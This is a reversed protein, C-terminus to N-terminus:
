PDAPNLADEIEVTGPNITPPDILTIAPSVYTAAGGNFWLCEQAILNIALNNSGVPDGDPSQVNFTVDVVEGPAVDHPLPNRGNYVDWHPDGNWRYSVAIRKDSVACDGSTDGSAYWTRTGVNEITVTVDRDDGLCWDSSGYDITIVEAEFDQGFVSFGLVLQICVVIIKNFINLKKLNYEKKM